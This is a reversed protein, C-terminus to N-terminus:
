TATLLSVLICTKPAHNHDASMNDKTAVRGWRSCSAPPNCYFPMMISPMRSGPTCYSLKVNPLGGKAADSWRRLTFCDPGNTGSANTMMALWQVRRRSSLHRMCEWRTDSSALVKDFRSHTDEIVANDARAPRVHSPEHNLPSRLKHCQHINDAHQQRSAELAQLNQQQSAVQPQTPLCGAATNESAGLWAAPHRLKDRAVHHHHHLHSPWSHEPRLFSNQASQTVNATHPNHVQLAFM